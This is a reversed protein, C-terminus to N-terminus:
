VNNDYSVLHDYSLLLLIVHPMIVQILAKIELDLRIIDQQCIKVQVDSAM